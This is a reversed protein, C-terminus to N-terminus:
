EEREECEKQNERESIHEVINAQCSKSSKCFSRAPFLQIKYPENKHEESSNESSTDTDKSPFPEVSQESGEDDDIKKSQIKYKSPM